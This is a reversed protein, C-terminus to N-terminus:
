GYGSSAIGHGIMALLSALCGGYLLSFVRHCRESFMWWGFVCYLGVVFRSVFSGGLLWLGFNCLFWLWNCFDFLLFLCISGCYVIAFWSLVMVAGGYGILGPKVLSAALMGFVCFDM